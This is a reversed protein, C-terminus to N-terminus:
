YNNILNKLKIGGRVESNVVIKDEDEIGLDKLTVNLDKIVRGDYKWQNNTRNNVKKFYKERCIQITDTDLVDMETEKGKPDILIITISTM